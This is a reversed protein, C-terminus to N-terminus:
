YEFDQIDVESFKQIVSMQLGQDIYNSWKWQIIQHYSTWPYDMIDKVIGHKLANFNVYAMAQYLYKDDAILKARFRGEFLTWKRDYKLNFYKAYANQLRWMFLSLEVGPNFIVFHFHNPLFSYSIIKIESFTDQKLNHLFIEYFRQFDARNKFINMKEFWRNYVHYVGTDFNRRPM